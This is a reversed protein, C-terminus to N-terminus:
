LTIVTRTDHSAAAAAVAMKRQSQAKKFCHVYDKALNWYDPGVLARLRMELNEQLPSFHPDGMRNRKVCESVMAKTQMCLKTNQSMEICKILIRVFLLLDRRRQKERLAVVASREAPLASTPPRASPLVIPGIPTGIPIKLPPTMTKDSPSCM